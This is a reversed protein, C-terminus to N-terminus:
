LCIRLQLWDVFNEAFRTRRTTPEAAPRGACLGENIRCSNTAYHNILSFPVEFLQQGDVQGLHRLRDPAVAAHKMTLKAAGQRTVHTRLNAVGVAAIFQFPGTLSELVLRSRRQKCDSHSLVDHMKMIRDVLIGPHSRMAALRAPPVASGAIGM